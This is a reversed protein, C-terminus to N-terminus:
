FIVADMRVDHPEAFTDPVLQFPFGIGIKLADPRAKALM